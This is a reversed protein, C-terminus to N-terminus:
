DDPEDFSVLAPTPAIASSSSSSPSFLGERGIRPMSPLSLHPSPPPPLPGSSLMPQSLAPMSVGRRPLTPSHDTSGRSEIPLENVTANPPLGYPPPTMPMPLQSRPPQRAPSSFVPTGDPGIVPVPMPGPMPPFGRPMGRAAAAAMMMMEMEGQRQMKREAQKELHEAHKTQAKSVM